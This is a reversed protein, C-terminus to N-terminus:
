GVRGAAILEVIAVFMGSVEMTGIVLAVAVAIAVTTDVVRAVRVREAAIVVPVALKSVTGKYPLHPPL